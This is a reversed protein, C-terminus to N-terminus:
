RGFTPGSPRLHLEPKPQEKEREAERKTRAELRAVRAEFQEANEGKFPKLQRAPTEPQTSGSDRNTSEEPKPAIWDKAQRRRLESTDPQQAAEPKAARDNDATLERELNPATASQARRPTLPPATGIPPADARERTSTAAESRGRETESQKTRAAGARVEEVTPLGQLDGLRERVDKVKLGPVCRPISYTELASDMVLVGRKGTALRYGAGEIMSQFEDASGASKWAGAVAANLTERPTDSRADQQQQIDKVHQNLKHAGRARAPTQQLGLEIEVERAARCLKLHSFSMEVCKREAVDVRSWVVHLHQKGEYVHAVIARPHGELGLAKEAKEVSQKWDDPGLRDRADPNIALHFLSSKARTMKGLEDMDGLAAKLGQASREDIVTGRVDLVRVQENKDSLLYTALKGGDARARGKFIM